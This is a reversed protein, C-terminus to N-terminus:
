DECGLKRCLPVRKLGLYEFITEFFDKRFKVEFANVDMCGPVGEGGFGQLLCCVNNCDRFNQSM